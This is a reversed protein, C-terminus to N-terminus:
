KDGGTCPENQQNCSPFPSEMTNLTERIKNMSNLYEVLKEHYDFERQTM